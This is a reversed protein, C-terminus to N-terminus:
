PTSPYCGSDERLMIEYAISDKAEKYLYAEEKLRTHRVAYEVLLARLEELTAERIASHDVRM